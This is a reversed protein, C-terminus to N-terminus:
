QGCLRDGERAPFFPIILDEMSHIRTRPISGIFNAMKM